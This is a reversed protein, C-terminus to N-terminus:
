LQCADESDFHRAAGNDAVLQVKNNSGIVFESVMVVLNSAMEPFGIRFDLGQEVFRVDSGAGGEDIEIRDAARNSLGGFVAFVGIDVIADDSTLESLTARRLFCLVAM